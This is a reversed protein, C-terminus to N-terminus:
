GAGAPSGLVGEVFISTIKVDPLTGGDEYKCVLWGGADISAASVTMAKPTSKTWAVNAGGVAKFCVTTATGATGGNLLTLTMHNSAHAAVATANMCNATIVDGSYPFRGVGFNLSETPDEWSTSYTVRNFYPFSM